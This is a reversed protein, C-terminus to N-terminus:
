ECEKSGGRRGGRREEGGGEVESRRGGGRGGEGRGGGRRPLIVKQCLQLVQLLLFQLCVQQLYLSGGLGDNLVGYADPLQRRDTLTCYSVTIAIDYSGQHITIM